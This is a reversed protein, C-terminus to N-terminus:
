RRNQVRHVENRLERKEAIEEETLCFHLSGLIPKDYRILKGCERCVVWLRGKSDETLQIKKM